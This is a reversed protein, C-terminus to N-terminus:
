ARRMADSLNLDSIDWGGIVVNDPNVLPLVDKM